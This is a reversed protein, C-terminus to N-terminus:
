DDLSLRKQLRKYTDDAVRENATEDQIDHISRRQQPITKHGVEDAKIDEEFQKVTIPVQFVDGINSLFTLDLQYDKAITENDVRLDKLDRLIATLTQPHVMTKHIDNGDNTTQLMQEKIEKEGLEYLKKRKALQKIAAVNKDRAPNFEVTKIQKGLQNLSDIFGKDYTSTGQEHPDGGDKGEPPTANAQRTIKKHLFRPDFSTSTNARFATENQNLSEDPTFGTQNNGTLPTPSSTTSPHHLQDSSVQQSAPKQVKLLDIESRKIPKTVSETITKSLHKGGQKSASSGM